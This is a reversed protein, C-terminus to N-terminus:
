FLPLKLHSHRSKLLKNETRACVVHLAFFHLLALQEPTLIALIQGQLCNEEHQRCIREKHVRGYTLNESPLLGLPSPRQWSSICIVLASMAAAQLSGPVFSAKEFDGLHILDFFSFCVIVSCGLICVVLLAVAQRSMSPLSFSFNLNKRLGKSVRM